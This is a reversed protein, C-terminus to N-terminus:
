PSSEGETPITTDGFDMNAYIAEMREDPFHLDMFQEYANEAAMGDIRESWRLVALGSVMCNVLMFAALMWTIIRGPGNPLKLIWKSMRPYIDKIWFVGLIGWFISYLLCVRGNIHFPMSSYDWSRSGFIAEQFWSCAYEVISGIVFGGAFSLWPGRNRYRYLALSLAVAGIGYLPSFPGWVVGNRSELYGHRLLCWIVEVVVGAFSGIVFVLVLKYLNMGSSFHAKETEQLDIASNAPPNLQYWRRNVAKETDNLRAHLEDAMGAAARHAAELQNSAHRLAAIEDKIKARLDGSIGSATTCRALEEYYTVSLEERCTESAALADKGLEDLTESLLSLEPNEPYAAANTM